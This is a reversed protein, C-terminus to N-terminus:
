FQVWTFFILFGLFSVYSSNKLAQVIISCNRLATCVVGILHFGVHAQKLDQPLNEKCTKALDIAKQAIELEGTNSRRSIREVAHRYQDRTPFDMKLYASAPDNALVSDVCSCSEFFVRWDLSSLLRMSNIINGVTIQAAAQRFHELQTVQTTNTNQTQLQKELWDFAPWVDPDQDRLRQILQVIFARDFKEALGLEKSLIEVMKEPKSGPVAAFELLRDALQDAKARKRRASVLRQALPKLHEILAIRLTIPVAWLEGIQLPASKQFSLLFRKLSDADLHSDTHAIMAMAIAYVRPYGTLAGALLKPLEDYYNKPLDREIERLQDEIIHFNDVFWEAAPSMAQKHRLAESLFLYSQLLDKGCRKVAPLLSRGRTPLSNVKLEGALYIAYQELGEVSFIEERTPDENLLETSRSLISL